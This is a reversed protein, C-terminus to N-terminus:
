QFPRDSEALGDIFDPDTSNIRPLSIPKGPSLQDARGEDLFKELRARATALFQARVRAEGNARDTSAGTVMTAASRTLEQIVSGLPVDDRQVEFSLERHDGTPSQPEVNISFPGYGWPGATNEM